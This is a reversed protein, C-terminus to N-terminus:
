HPQRRTPAAPPRRSGGSTPAGSTAGAQSILLQPQGGRAALGQVLALVNARYQATRARWRTVRQAGFLENLAIVPTSCSTVRVADNWIRTVASPISGPSAPRAPTGVSRSLSMPWLALPTRSRRADAAPADHALSAVLGPGFFLSRFPVW